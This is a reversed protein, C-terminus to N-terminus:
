LALKDTDGDSRIDGATRALVSEFNTACRGSPPVTNPRVRRSTFGCDIVMLKCLGGVGCVTDDSSIKRKFIVFTKQERILATRLFM